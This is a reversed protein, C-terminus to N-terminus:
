EDDRSLRSECDPWHRLGLRVGRDPQHEELAGQPPQTCAYGNRSDMGAIGLAEADFGVGAYECALQNSSPGVLLINGLLLAIRVLLRAM